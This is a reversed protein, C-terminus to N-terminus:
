LGREEDLQYLDYREIIHILKQSYKPDKSYGVTQIAKAWKKYAYGAKFVESFDDRLLISHARWNEWASAYDAGSMPIGFHNNNHKASAKEGAHSELIAQAMKISAPIDFKNMESRAVKKFRKIYAMVAAEDLKHLSHVKLNDEEESLHVIPQALMSETHIERGEEAWASESPNKMNISFQINKQTFIFLVLAAVGLKFWPFKIYVFAGATYKHFQYKLAIFIRGLLVQIKKWSAALSIAPDFYLEAEEQLGKQDKNVQKEYSASSISVDPKKSANRNMVFM